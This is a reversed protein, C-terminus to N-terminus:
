EGGDWPEYTKGFDRSVMVQVDTIQEHERLEDAMKRAGRASLTTYYDPRRWTVKWVLDGAM